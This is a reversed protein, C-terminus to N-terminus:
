AKSNILNYNQCPLITLKLNWVCWHMHMYTCVLTIILKTHVISCNKLFLKNISNLCPRTFFIIVKYHHAKNKTVSTCIYIPAGLCNSLLKNKFIVHRVINLCLKTNKQKVRGCCEMYRM